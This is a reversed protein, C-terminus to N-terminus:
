EAEKPSNNVAGFYVKDGRMHLRGADKLAKFARMFGKQKTDQKGETNGYFRQRLAEDSIGDLMLDMILEGHKSKRASEALDVAAQKADQAARQRFIEGSRMPVGLRIGIEQIVGHEDPASNYYAVETRIEIESFDRENRNKLSKIFTSSPFNKDRFVSGTAHVDGIYASAGRPTIEPDERGLAKAAHAVIWLPAGTSTVPQKLAALMAGIEANSNEDKVDFSASATDLTILAPENGGAEKLLHMVERPIERPALRAADFLHIHRKLEDPHIAFRRCLGYFLSEYQAAHESVIVIPRPRSVIIDSGMREGFGAALMAVSSFVTSKGVGPQGAFVAVQGSAIFGDLVWRIPKLIAFNVVSRQLKYPADEAPAPEPDPKKRRPNDWGLKEARFLISQFNIPKEDRPHFSEWKAAAERADYRESQQSWELWMARGLTGLPKLAHGVWMWVEYDDFDLYALAARLDRRQEETIVVPAPQHGNPRPEAGDSVQQVIWAQFAPSMPRVTNDALVNGTITVFGSTGFLELHRRQGYRNMAKRSPLAGYVLIRLGGGSPSFEAYSDAETVIADADPILRGDEVCADIDIAKVPSNALVAFGVGDFGGARFRALATTFNVLQELDAASGQTGHRKTGSAYYPIKGLKDQGAVPEYRWVLWQRYRRIEEPVTLQLRDALAEVVVEGNVAETM